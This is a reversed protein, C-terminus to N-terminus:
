TTQPIMFTAQTPEANDEPTPSNIGAVSALPTFHPTLSYTGVPSSSTAVPSTSPIQETQAPPRVISFKNPGKSGFGKGKDKGKDSM